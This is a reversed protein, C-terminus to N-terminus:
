AFVDRSKEKGVSDSMRSRDLDSMNTLVIVARWTRYKQTLQKVLNPLRSGVVNSSNPVKPNAAQEIQEHTARKLFGRPTFLAITKIYQSCPNDGAAARIISLFPRRNLNLLLILSPSPIKATM